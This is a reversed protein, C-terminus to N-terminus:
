ARCDPKWRSIDAEVWRIGGPSKRAEELMAPSADVGTIRAGPWRSALQRTVQGTGCGLDCVDSAVPV